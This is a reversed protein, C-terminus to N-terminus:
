DNVAALAGSFRSLWRDLARQIFFEHTEVFFGDLAEGMYRRAEVRRGLSNAVLALHYHKGFDDPGEVPVSELLQEALPFWGQRWYVRALAGSRRCTLTILAGEIRRCLAVTGGQAIACNAHSAGKPYNHQAMKNSSTGIPSPELPPWTRPKISTAPSDSVSKPLTWM